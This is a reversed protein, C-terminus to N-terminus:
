TWKYMLNQDVVCPGVLKRYQEDWLRLTKEDAVWKLSDKGKQEISNDRAHMSEVRPPLGTGVFAAIKEYQEVGNLQLLSEMQVELYDFAYERKLSQWRCETDDVLWLYRQFRNFSNWVRQDPRLKVHVDSPRPFWRRSLSESDESWPDESEPGLAMLSLAQQIRDRRIRVVAFTKSGLLKLLIPAMGFALPVHGTQFYVKADDAAQLRSKIMPLKVESLFERALETDNTAAFPRYFKNVAEKASVSDAEDQHNVLAEKGGFVSSFHKTGTRGTSFVFVLKKGEFEAKLSPAVLRRSPDIAARDFAANNSRCFHVSRGLALLLIFCAAPWVLNFKSRPPPPPHDKFGRESSRSAGRNRRFM